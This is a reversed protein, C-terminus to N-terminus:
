ATGEGCPHGREGDTRHCNGNRGCPAARPGVTGFNPVEPDEHLKRGVGHGVFTRVVSLGNAEVYQQVAAGIDGVRNGPQAAAIGRALPKKQSMWSTSHMKRCGRWVRVHRRQRRELRRHRRRHGVSVIDGEKLVIHKSPLGHIVTDNVSICASGPFGYLGKFNPKAGRQVIYDYVIKDIQATSVGPRVAEGAARLAGARSRARWACPRRDRKGNKDPDRSIGGAERVPTKHYRGCRGARGGGCAQRAPPLFGGAARTLEHYVNM